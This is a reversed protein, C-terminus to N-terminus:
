KKTELPIERSLEYWNEETLDDAESRIKSYKDINPFLRKIIEDRKKLWEDIAAYNKFRVVTKYTWSPELTHIRQTYMKISGDTLGLKHVEEWFLYFKSRYIELFKEEMGPKVKYYSEEIVIQEKDEQAQAQLPNSLSLLLFLAIFFIIIPKLPKM